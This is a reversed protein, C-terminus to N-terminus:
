WSGPVMDGFCAKQTPTLVKMNLDAAQPEFLHLLKGLMVCPM